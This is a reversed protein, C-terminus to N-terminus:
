LNAYFHSVIKGLPCRSPGVGQLGWLSLEPGQSCAPKPLYGQVMVWNGPPIFKGITVIHISTATALHFYEM